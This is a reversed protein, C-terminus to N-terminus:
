NNIQEIETKIEQAKKIKIHAAELGDTQKTILHIKSNPSSFYDIDSSKITPERFKMM